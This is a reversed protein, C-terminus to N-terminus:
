RNDGKPFAIVATGAILTRGTSDDVVETSFTARKREPDLESCTVNATIASGEFAPALLVIEYRSSVGGPAVLKTLATQVYGAVLLGHAVPKGFRTAAAYEADEHIPNHDGCMAAYAGITDADILASYSATLGVHMDAFRKINTTTM